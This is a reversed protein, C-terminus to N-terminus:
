QRAKGKLEIKLRFKSKPAVHFYVQDGNACNEFLEKDIRYLTNEIIIDYRIFEKMLNNHPLTTMNGSGAEADIKSKRQQITKTVLIKENNRIDSIYKGNMKFNIFISLIFMSGIVLLMHINNLSDIDQNFIFDVIASVLLSGLVFFFFPIVYGMRCQYRLDKIDQATLTKRM